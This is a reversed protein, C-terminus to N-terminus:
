SRKSSVRSSHGRPCGSCVVNLLPTQFRALIPNEQEVVCSFDLKLEPPYSVEEETVAFHTQLM